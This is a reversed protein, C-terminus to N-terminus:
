NARQATRGQIASVVAATLLVAVVRTGTQEITLDGSAAFVVIAALAILLWPTYTRVM